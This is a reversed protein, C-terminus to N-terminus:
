QLSFYLFNYGSNVMDTPLSLTVYDITDTEGSSAALALFIAHSSSSNIRKSVDELKAEDLRLRQTIKLYPKETEDKLLNETIDTEGETLLLKTPFLSNKLIIGGDWSKDIRKAMDTVSKASSAGSQDLRSGNSGRSTNHDYRDEEMRRM